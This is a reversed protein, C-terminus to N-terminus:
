VFMDPSSEEVIQLGGKVSHRFTDNMEFVIKVEKGKVGSYFNIIYLPFQFRIWNV